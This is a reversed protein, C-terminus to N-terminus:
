FQSLLNDIFILINSTKTNRENFIMDTFVKLCLKGFTHLCKVGCIGILRDFKTIQYTIQYEILRDFKIDALKWYIRWFNSIKFSLFWLHKNFPLIFILLFLHSNLDCTIRNNCKTDNKYTNSENKYFFCDNQM